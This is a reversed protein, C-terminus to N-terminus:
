NDKSKESSLINSETEKVQKDSSALENQNNKSLPTESDSTKDIVIDEEDVEKEFDSQKGEVAEM